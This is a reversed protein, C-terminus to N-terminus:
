ECWSEEGHPCDRNKLWWDDLVKSRLLRPPTTMVDGMDEQLLDDLRSPREVPSALDWGQPPHYRSSFYQWKRWETRKSALPEIGPFRRERWSRDCSLISQLEEDIRRADAQLWDKVLEQARDGLFWELWEQLTYSCWLLPEFEDSAAFDMFGQYFARHLEKITVSGSWQLVPEKNWNLEEIRLFGAMRIYTFLYYIDESDWFWTQPSAGKTCCREVWDIMDPYPDPCGGLLLLDKGVRMDLWAWSDEVNEWRVVLVSNGLDKEQGSGTELPKPERARASPDDSDMQM